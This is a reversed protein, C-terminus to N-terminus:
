RRLKKMIPVESEFIKKIGDGMAIDIGRIYKMLKHVGEPEISAAQDSGYMARDLTIHFEIMEAGLAAAVPMYIIGPNHNSFGIKTFPYRLKMTKLCNLNLESPKSPYTSTCHMICYTRERGLMRFAEDVIGWTSMGTSLIIPKDTLEKCATLLEVDTILASPIKIFPNDFLTAMKLSNIDWVSFFWKIKRERCYYDILHYDQLDFELGRKQDGNTKGWPSERPADLEAKTYVLDIDRKQFKVYDCGASVAVDIMRKATEISGNANIGIEAIVETM